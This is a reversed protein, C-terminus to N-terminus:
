VLLQRGQRQLISCFEGDHIDRRYQFVFSLQQRCLDYLSLHYLASRCRSRAGRSSKECAWPWARRCLVELPRCLHLDVAPKGDICVLDAQLRRCDAGCVAELGIAKASESTAARLVEVPSLGVYHGFVPLAKPLDSHYVNPIGADTSAIFQVGISKMAAFNQRMQTELFSRSGGAGGWVLRRHFMSPVQVILRATAEHYASGWGRRTLWSCHEITAVGAAAANHIGGTGHCHAAVHRGSEAAAATIAALTAEDFQADMPKSNPTMAGGTAMVKILDAGSAVQRALVALAEEGYRSGVLTAIGRRLRSRNAPRGAQTARHHRGPIRDRIELELWRGGGLDRATTIGARAMAEARETMQALLVDDARRGHALPDREEPDLCLHVHADIMGPMVTVGGMDVPADDDAVDGKAGIEVIKGRSTSHTSGPTM